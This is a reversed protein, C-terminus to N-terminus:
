HQRSRSGVQNWPGGLAWLPQRLWSGVHDHRRHSGHRETTGCWALSRSRDFRHHIEGGWRGDARPLRRPPSQKTAVAQHCSRMLPMCKTRRRTSVQCLVATVSGTAVTPAAAGCVESNPPPITNMGSFMGGAEAWRFGRGSDAASLAAVGTWFRPRTADINAPTNCSSPTAYVTASPTGLLM